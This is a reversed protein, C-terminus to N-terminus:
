VEMCARAQEEYDGVSYQVFKDIFVLDVTDMISGGGRGGSFFIVCVCVCM